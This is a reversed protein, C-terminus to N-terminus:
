RGDLTFPVGAQEYPRCAAETSFRALIVPQPTFLVLYWTLYLLVCTM